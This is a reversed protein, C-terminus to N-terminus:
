RGSARVVKRIRLITARADTISPIREVEMNWHNAAETLEVGVQAGKLFLCITARSMFRESYRLLGPLPACARATVVDAPNTPMAEIRTNRIKVQVGAHRAADALFACKKNSREVLEVGDLGLIALVLGPFGAGSGLDVLRRCSPPIMPLLQASDLIHRRWVDIISVSSVLNIRRQWARLRAVYADLRECTERSVNAIRGFEERSLPREGNFELQTRARGRFRSKDADHGSLGNRRSRHQDAVLECSVRRHL